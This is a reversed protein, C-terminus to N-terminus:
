GPTVLLQATLTQGRNECKPSEALAVGGGLPQQSSINAAKSLMVPDLSDTGNEDAEDLILVPRHGTRRTLFAQPPLPLLECDTWDPNVKGLSVKPAPGGVEKHVVEVFGTLGILVHWNRHTLSIQSLKEELWRSLFKRLKSGERLDAAFSKAIVCHVSEYGPVFTRFLLRVEGYPATMKTLKSRVQVLQGHFVGAPPLYITENQQDYISQTNM